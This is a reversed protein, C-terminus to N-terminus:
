IKKDFIQRHIYYVITYGYRVNVEGLLIGISFTIKAVSADM